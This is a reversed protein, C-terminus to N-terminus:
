PRIRLREPIYGSEYNTRISLLGFISHDEKEGGSEEARVTARDDVAMVQAHALGRQGDDFAPIAALFIFHSVVRLCLFGLKPFLVDMSDAFVRLVM